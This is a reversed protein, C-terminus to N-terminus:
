RRAVFVELSGSEVESHEFPVQMATFRAGGPACHVFATEIAQRLDAETTM